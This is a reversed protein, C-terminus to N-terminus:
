ATIRQKEGALARAHARAPDPAFPLTWMVHIYEEFCPACLVILRARGEAPFTQDYGFFEADPDTTPQACSECIM